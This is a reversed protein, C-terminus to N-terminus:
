FSYTASTIETGYTDSECAIVKVTVSSGADGGVRVPGTYAITGSDPACSPARLDLTYGLRDFGADSDDCFPKGPATMTVDVFGADYQGSTPSITPPITTFPLVFTFTATVVDSSAGDEIAIAKVVTTACKVQFGGTYPTSVATPTTGDTTYYIAEGLPANLQVEEAGSYNGGNPTITPAVVVITADAADTADIADIGADIIPTTAEISADKATEDENDIPVTKVSNCAIFAALVVFSAFAVRFRM